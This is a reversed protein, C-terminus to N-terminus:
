DADPRRKGRHYLDSHHQMLNKMNEEERKEHESILQKMKDAIGNNLSAYIVDKVLEKHELREKEIDLKSSRQLTQWKFYAWVLAAGLLLHNPDSFLRDLFEFM